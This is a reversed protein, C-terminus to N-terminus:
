IELIDSWWAESTLVPPTIVAPKLPDDDALAATLRAAIDNLPDLKPPNFIENMHLKMLDMIAKFQLQIRKALDMYGQSILTHLQLSIDVLTLLYNSSLLNVKEVASKLAKMLFEDEFFIDKGAARKRALKRRARGTKGTKTSAGTMGTLFTYNTRGTRATNGTMQTTAMSATDSFMDINDLREDIEGQIEIKKTKEIRVQRLRITQKEFTEYIEKLEQLFANGHSLIAPQIVKKVLHSHSTKQALLIADTYYGGAVLTEISLVPDNLYEAYITSAEKHKRIELLGEILEKAYSDIQYNLALAATLAEKWKLALMYASLANETDGALTYLTASEEFRRSDFLSTAFAKVITLYQPTGNEYLFLANQYLDHKQIYKLLEEFREDGCMALHKLAKVKKGLHDDISFKQYNSEMKQLNSLFPLYERPDKHSHQAVMLVLSFDYMGLAVDFLKNVDVLFILYKLATDASDVSQEVKIQLIRAMADELAPPSKKADTTLISFCYFDKDVKELSSRIVDCITNIKSKFDFETPQPRSKAPYMTKTIDENRLGSILLNLFDPDKIQRVIEDIYSIFQHVDHDVLINMDIRNRRCSIFATKYDKMEISSRVSSLVLARPAITELNGRPMQLVLHTHFPITLVIKAGLEISRSKENFGTSDEEKPPFNFEEASKHVSLFKVVHELTSIILFENHLAFSTCDIALVDTNAFLKNRETLGIYLIQSEEANPGVRAAEVWPCFQPLKTRRVTYWESEHSLIQFIDGGLTEFSLLELSPNHILKGIALNQQPLTVNSISIIDSNEFELILIEDTAFDASMTSGIEDLQPNICVFRLTAKKTIKESAETLDEYLTIENESLVAMCEKAFYSYAVHKVNSTLEIKSHSMPPPVNRTKFPTLLLNAGDIVAVTGSNEPSLLSGRLVERSFTFTFLKSDLTFFMISATLGHILLPMESDWLLQIFREDSGLVIEYKLYWYYNSSGWFQVAHKLKDGEKYEMRIALISSDSNWQLDYVVIDQNRLSFEGHRLGNKEFFVVDHKNPLVQTSAILNGSPRWSLSQELNAVNESTHQLNGDRNYVRLVRKSEKANATSVVFYNGDGRWSIRPYLDDNNSLGTTNDTKKAASKGIAGHFQTEKKGWGVNVQVAEGYEDVEVPFEAVIQFDKTMEILSGMETIIVVLESDPSWEMALIGADVVGVQEASGNQLLYIDGARLGVCIADLEIIYNFSIINSGLFSGVLGANNSILVEGNDEKAYYIEGTDPNLTFVDCSTSFEKQNLLLLSEM